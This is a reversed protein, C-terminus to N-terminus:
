QRHLLQFSWPSYVWKGIRGDSIAQAPGSQIFTLELALGQLERSKGSPSYLAEMVGELAQREATDTSEGHLRSLQLLDDQTGFEIFHFALRARDKPSSVKDLLYVMAERAPDPTQRLSALIELRDELSGRLLGEVQKVLAPPATKKQQALAPAPFATLVLLAPALVGAPTLFLTLALSTARILAAIAPAAPLAEQRTHHPTM